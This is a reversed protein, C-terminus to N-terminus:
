PIFKLLESVKHRYLYIAFYNKTQDKQAEERQTHRRKAETSYYYVEDGVVTGVAYQQKIEAPKPLFHKNGRCPVWTDLMPSESFFLRTHITQEDGKPDQQETDEGNDGLRLTNVLGFCGVNVVRFVQMSYWQCRYDESTPSLYGQPLPLIKRGASSWQRTASNWLQVSIERPKPQTRYYIIFDDAIESQLLSRDEGGILPPFTNESGFGLRISNEDQWRFQSECATNNNIWKHYANYYGDGIHYVGGYQGNPLAFANSSYFSGPMGNTSGCGRLAGWGWYFMLFKLLNNEPIYEVPCYPAILVDGSGNALVPMADRTPYVLLPETPEELEQLCKEISTQAKLLESKMVVKDM